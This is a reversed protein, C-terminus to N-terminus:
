RRGAAALVGALVKNPKKLESAEMFGAGIRGGLEYRTCANAMMFGDRHTQVSSGDCVGRLRYGGGNPMWIDVRSGLPTIGDGAMEAVFDVSRIDRWEGRDFVHGLSRTGDSGTVHYVSIILDDGFSAWNWRYAYISSWDRAGWSRDQFALGNVQYEAGECTVTGTVTGFNEWHGKGIASGGSDYSMGLTDGSAAFDLSALVDRDDIRLTRHTLPRDSKLHFPGITLDSYDDAPLPLDNNLYKHVVRGNVAIWSWADAINRVRQMGTHHFGGIRLVPDYWALCFSEQWDQDDPDEPLHNRDDAATIESM